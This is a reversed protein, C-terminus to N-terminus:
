IQGCRKVGTLTCVEKEKGLRSFAEPKSSIIRWDDLKSEFFNFILVAM